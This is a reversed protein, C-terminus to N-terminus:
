KFDSLLPFAFSFEEKTSIEQIKFLNEESHILYKGDDTVYFKRTVLESLAIRFNEVKIITQADWLEVLGNPCIIIALVDNIFKAYNLVDNCQTLIRIETGNKLDWLKILGDKAGSIFYRSDKSISIVNIHAKHGKIIYEKEGSQFNWIIISNDSSGSVIYKSDFSIDFSWIYGNHGHLVKEIMQSELNWIIIKKDRSASIIYKNDHTIKICTVWDNHGILLNALSKTSIDWIGISNDWFGSVFFKSDKSIALSSAESHHNRFIYSQTRSALDWMHITKDKSGTLLIKSDESAAFSLINDSHESLYVGFASEFYLYQEELPEDDLHIIRYATYSLSLFIFLASSIVLLKIM